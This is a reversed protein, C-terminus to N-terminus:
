ELRHRDRWLRRRRECHQREGQDGTRIFSSLVLAAVVVGIVLVLGISSAVILTKKKM